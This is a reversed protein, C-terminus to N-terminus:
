VREEKYSNFRIKGMLHIGAGTLSKAERVEFGKKEFLRSVEVFHEFCAPICGLSGGNETTPTLYRRAISECVYCQKKKKM